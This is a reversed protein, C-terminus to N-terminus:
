NTLAEFSQPAEDLVRPGTRTIEMVALGREAVGDPGFRFIGDIGAFGNPNGLSAADFRPEGGGQSLVAALATADYALSALRAPRRGYVQEFRDLFAVGATPSPAAYWGGILTPERALQPDDWLGTGLLKVQSPSVDYYPLLPAVARLTGGGEALLLADFPDVKFREALRQVAPSADQGGAPFSETQVVAMGSVPASQEAALSVTSGYPSEPTLVALRRLGRAGAFDVIRRVQQDPVFGILYVGEGAVNRNTSFSVVNIGRARAMPAVASVGHSFLPGIILEAGEQLASEAAAAAGEATGATDRPLLTLRSDGIDFLAMMAADLLANGLPAAEGSLPLLLGVKVPVEGEPTLPTLQPKPEETKPPLATQPPPPPPPPPEAVKPPPPPEATRSAGGDGTSQCAALALVGLALAM